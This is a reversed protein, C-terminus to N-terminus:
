RQFGHPVIFIWVIRFFQWTIIVSCVWPTSFLTLTLLICKNERMKMMDMSYIKLQKEGAFCGYFSLKRVPKKITFSDKRGIRYFETWCDQKVICDWFTGYSNQCTASAMKFTCTHGCRTCETAPKWANEWLNVIISTDQQVAIDISNFGFTKMIRGSDNVTTYHM